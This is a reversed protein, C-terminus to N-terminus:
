VKKVSDSTNRGGGWAGKAPTKWLSPRCSAPLLVPCHGVWCPQVPSDSLYILTWLQSIPDFPKQSSVNAWYRVLAHAGLRPQPQYCTVTQFAVSGKPGERFARSKTQISWNISNICSPKIPLTRGPVVQQILSFLFICEPDPNTQCM